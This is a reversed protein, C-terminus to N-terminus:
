EREAFLPAVKRKLRSDIGGRLPFCEFALPYNDMPDRILGAIIAEFSANM